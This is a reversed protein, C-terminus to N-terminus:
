GRVKVGYTAHKKGVEALNAKLKDNSDTGLIEITIDIMELLFTAHMLFRRSRALENVSPYMKLSFGFLEQAEPCVKFLSFYVFLGFDLTNAPLLLVM